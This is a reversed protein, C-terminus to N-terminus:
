TRNVYAEDGALTLAKERHRVPEVDAVFFPLRDVRYQGDV